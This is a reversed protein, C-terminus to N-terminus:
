QDGGEPNAQEDHLRGKFIWAGCDQCKWQSRKYGALIIQDGYLNRVFTPHKHKCFLRKILDFM